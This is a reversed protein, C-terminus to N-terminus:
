AVEAMEPQLLDVLFCEITLDGRHVGVSKKRQFSGLMIENGTGAIMSLMEDDGLADLEIRYAEVKDKRRQLEKAKREKAELSRAHRKAQDQLRKQDDADQTAQVSPKPWSQDPPTGQTFREIRDKLAGPGFAGPTKSNTLKYFAIIAAVDDVIAKSDQAAKITKLTASIGLSRLEKEIESWTGQPPPNSTLHNNTLYTEGVTERCNASSERVIEAEVVVEKSLEKIETEFEGQITIGYETKKTRTGDIVFLLGAKRLKSRARIMQPITMDTIHALSGNHFPVPRKDRSRDQTQGITSYLAYCHAGYRPIGESYIFEREAKNVFFPERKPYTEPYNFRSETTM